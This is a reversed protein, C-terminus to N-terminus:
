SKGIRKNYYVMILNSHVPSLGIIYKKFDENLLLYLEVFVNIIMKRIEVVRHNLCKSLNDIFDDIISLVSEKNLRKIILNVKNLINWMVKESNRDNIYKVIVEFFSTSSTREYINDIFKLIENEYLPFREAIYLLRNVILSCSINVISMIKENDSLLLSEIQSIIIKIQNMKAKTIQFLYEDLRQNDSLIYSNLEENSYSIVKELLSSNINTKNLNDKNIVIEKIKVDNKSKVDFVGYEGLYNKQNYLVKILYDIENGNIMNLVKILSEKQNICVIEFIELSLENIQRILNENKFSFTLFVVRSLRYILNYITNFSLIQIEVTYKQSYFSTVSDKAMLLLTEIYYLTKNYIVYIDENPLNQYIDTNTKNNISEFEKQFMELILSLSKIVINGNYKQCIILFINKGAESLLRDDSSILFFLKKILSEIMEDSWYECIYFLIKSLSKMIHLNLKIRGMTNISYNISSSSSFEKDNLSINEIHSEILNTITNSHILKINSYIENFLSLIEDFSSIKNHIEKSYSKEILIILTKEINVTLNQDKNVEKQKMDTNSKITQNQSPKKIIIPSQYTKSKEIKSQTSKNSQNIQNAHSTSNLYTMNYSKDKQNVIYSSDEIINDKNVDKKISKVETKKVFDINLNSEEKNNCDEQNNSTDDEDNGKSNSKLNCFDVSFKYKGESILRRDENLQKLVSHGLLGNLFDEKFPFLKIYKFYIRRTQSRVEGSSDSSLTIIIDDIMNTSKSLIDFPYSTIVFYMQQSIKLRIVINKSTMNEHLRIIIKITKVNNIIYLMTKNVNDSIIKNASPLIKFLCNSSFLKDAISEFQNKYKESLFSMAACAEKMLSTRLDSMQIYLNYYIKQNLYKLFEENQSFTGIAISCIRKISAERKKWDSLVDKTITLFSEIETILEKESKPSFSTVEYSFPNQFSM